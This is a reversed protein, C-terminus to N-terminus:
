IGKVFALNKPNKIDFGAPKNDHYYIVERHLLGSQHTSILKKVAIRTRRIFEDPDLIEICCDSCFEKYLRSDHRMSLCFVNISDTNTSNLFSFDGKALIRGTKPDSLTVDNDPNDRHFGELPDGRKNDEYQRFYSLNRFLLDGKKVFSGAYQSPMYKYLKM